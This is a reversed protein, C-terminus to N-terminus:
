ACGSFSRENKRRAVPGDFVEARQGIHPWNKLTREKMKDPQWWFSCVRCVLLVGYNPWVVEPNPRICSKSGSRSRLRTQWQPFTLLGELRVGGVGVGKCEAYSGDVM